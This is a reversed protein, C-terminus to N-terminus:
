RWLCFCTSLILMVFAINDSVSDSPSVTVTASKLVNTPQEILWSVIVHSAKISHDKASAVEKMIRKISESVDSIIPRDHPDNNLCQKVLNVLDESTEELKDIHDQRREIESLALLKKTKPDTVVYHLPTPWEQNVVHLIVGGYSFVDLPPGYEPVEAISEPGMFDAARYSCTKVKKSHARIVKGIGIDSIKAVLQNNLLINNPTLDEHVIPPDHSHLYWLGKSVDLLMSLKILTPINPYKEVLSTLSEQMQEMVPVPLRSDVVPNYVGLLQVVNPHSLCIMSQACDTLFAKRLRNYEGPSAGQILAPHVEKAACVTGYCEVEFVRGYTGFGITRGTPKVGTLYLHGLRDNKALNLSMVVLLLGYLFSGYQRSGPFWIKIVRTILPDGLFRGNPVSVHYM